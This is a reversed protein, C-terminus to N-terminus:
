VKRYKRYNYYCVASIIILVVIAMGIIGSIGTFPLSGNYKPDSGKIASSNQDNEGNGGTTGSQDNGDSPQEGGNGPNDGEGPQEGEGGGPNEGKGPEEGEGGGPNEGPDQEEVVNITVSTGTGDITEAISTGKIEGISVTTNGYSANDNVKFTVVATEVREKVVEADLTNAVIAGENQTAEWGSSASIKEISLVNEDYDLKATYGAIGQEGSVVQIEDLFIKVEFTGGPTIENTVPELSLKFSDSSSAKSLTSFLIMVFVIIFIRKLSKM